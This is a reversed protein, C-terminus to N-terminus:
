VLAAAIADKEAQLEQELRLVRDRLRANADMLNLVRAPQANCLSEPWNLARKLRNGLDAAEAANAATKGWTAVHELGSYGFVIVHTLGHAKGFDRVSKIPIRPKSMDRDEM